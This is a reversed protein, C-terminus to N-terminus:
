VEVRVSAQRGRSLGRRRYIVQRASGRRKLDGQRFARTSLSPASLTAAVLMTHTLRDARRESARRLM